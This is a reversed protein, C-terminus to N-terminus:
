AGKIAEGHLHLISAPEARYEQIKEACLDLAEDWSVPQWGKGTRLMPRTIRSPSRLRRTFDRIKSCTFGATFPHAPNGHISVRGQADTSIVLSCGDPCDLTCATVETM